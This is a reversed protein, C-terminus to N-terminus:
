GANQRATIMQWEAHRWAQRAVMDVRHCLAFLGGTLMVPLGTPLGAPLGIQLSAPQCRVYIGM